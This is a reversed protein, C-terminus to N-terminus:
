LSFVHPPRLSGNTFYVKQKKIEVLSLGERSNDFDTQGALFAGTDICIHSLTKSIKHTISHGCFTPSLGPLLEPPCETVSEIKKMFSRGWLWHKTFYPYDQPPVNFFDKTSWEQFLADIDNDLLVENPKGADYLEAHVVHFREPGKGVVILLPLQRVKSLLEILRLQPCDDGFNYDEYIWDGGNSLLEHQQSRNLSTGYQIFNWVYELLMTEHNGRVAYFWPENLLELCAISNPGRDILDGVSFLRDIETNFHVTALLTDLLERSGHLDGVVFDRGQDNVELCRVLPVSVRELPITNMIVGM